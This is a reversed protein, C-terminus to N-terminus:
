LIKLRRKPDPLSSIAVNIIAKSLMTTRITNNFVLFLLTKIAHQNIPANIIPVIDSLLPKITRILLESIIIVKM